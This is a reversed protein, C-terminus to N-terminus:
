TRFGDQNTSQVSGFLRLAGGRKAQERDPIIALFFHCFCLFLPALVSPKQGTYLALPEGEMPRSM